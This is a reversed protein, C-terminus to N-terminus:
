SPQTEGCRALFRKVANPNRIVQVDANRAYSRDRGNVATQKSASVCFGVGFIEERVPGDFPGGPVVGLRSTWSFSQTQKVFGSKSSTMHVLIEMWSGAQNRLWNENRRWGSM